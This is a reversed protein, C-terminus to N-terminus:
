GNGDPRMADAMDALRRLAFTIRGASVARSIDDLLCDRLDELQEIHAAIRRVAEARDSKEYFRQSVELDKRWDYPAKRRESM